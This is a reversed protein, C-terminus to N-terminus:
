PLAAARRCGPGDPNCTENGGKKAVFKQGPEGMCGGSILGVAKTKTKFKGKVKATYTDGGLDEGKGTGRFKGSPKIRMAKVTVPSGCAYFAAFWFKKVKLHGPDGKVKFTLVFTAYGSAGNIVTYGYGGTKPQAGGAPIASSLTLGLSAVMIIILNRIASARVATV